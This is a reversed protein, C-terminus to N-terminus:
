DAYFEEFEIPLEHLINWMYLQAYAEDYLEDQLAVFLYHHLEDQVDTPPNNVYEDVANQFAVDQSPYGKEMDVFHGVEHLASAEDMIFILAENEALYWYQGTAGQDRKAIEWSNFYIECGALQIEPTPEPTSTVEVYVIKPEPAACSVLFVLLLLLKKM